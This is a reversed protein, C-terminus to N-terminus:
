AASRGTLRRAMRDLKTKVSDDIMTSGVRVILGGIISPDVKTEVAVDVGMKKKLQARIDAVKGEDLVTASTVQAKTTGSAADFMAKAAELVSVLAPLRRNDALVALLSATAENFKAQKSIAAVAKTQDAKSILPSSLFAAFEPSNKVMSLLSQCDTAVAELAKKERAADLWAKAYRRAVQGAAM